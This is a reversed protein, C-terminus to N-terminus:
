ILAVNNEVAKARFMRGESPSNSTSQDYTASWLPRATLRMFYKRGSLRQFRPNSDWELCPHKRKNQTQTTRHLYRSQTPSIGRGLLGISQRHNLFQLSVFRKVSARRELHSCWSRISLDYILICAVRGYRSLQLRKPSPVHFLRWM